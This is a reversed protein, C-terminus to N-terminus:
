GHLEFSRCYGPIYFAIRTRTEDIKAALTRETHAAVVLPKM